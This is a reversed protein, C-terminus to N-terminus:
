DTIACDDYRPTITSPDDCPYVFGLVQRLYYTLKAVVEDVAVLSNSQHDIVALAQADPVGELNGAHGGSLVVEVKLVEGSGSTKVM